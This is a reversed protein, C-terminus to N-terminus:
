LVEGGGRYRGGRFHRDADAGPEEQGVLEAFMRPLADTDDGECGSDCGGHGDEDPGAQPHVALEAFPAAGAAAQLGDAVIRAEGVVAIEISRIRCRGQM